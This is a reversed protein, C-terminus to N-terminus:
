PQTLRLLVQTVGVWLWEGRSIGLCLPVTVHLGSVYCHPHGRPSGTCLPIATYLSDPAPWLLEGHKLPPPSASRPQAQHCEAPDGSFLISTPDYRAMSPPRPCWVRLLGSCRHSQCVGEAQEKGQLMWPTM